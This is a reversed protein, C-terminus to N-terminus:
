FRALGYKQKLYHHHNLSSQSVDLATIKAQPNTYAIVAAQNTGCGAVLIDMGPWYDRDPWFVHHAHIPDFWQWNSNLWEPLDDIPQPYIWREYQASVIDQLPDRTM